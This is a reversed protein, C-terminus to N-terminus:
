VYSFIQNHYPMMPFLVACSISLLAEYNDTKVKNLNEGGKINKVHGFMLKADTGRPDTAIILLSDVAM